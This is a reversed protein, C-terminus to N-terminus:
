VNRRISMDVEKAHGTNVYRRELALNLVAVGILAFVCAIIGIRATSEAVPLLGFAVMIAATVLFSLRAALMPFPLGQSFKVAVRPPRPIRVAEGTREYHGQLKTNIFGIALFVVIIAIASALTRSHSVGV